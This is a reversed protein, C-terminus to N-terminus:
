MMPGPAGTPIGQAPMPMPQPPAPPPVMPPQSDLASAPQPMPGAMHQVAGMVQDLENQLKQLEDTQQKNVDMIPGLAGKVEGEIQTKMQMLAAQVQKGMEQMIQQAQGQQNKTQDVTSLKFDRPFGATRGVFNLMKVLQDAGIAQMVSPNNAAIQLMELMSKASETNNIRDDGDRDSIFSEYAIAQKTAKVRATGAKEDWSEVPNKTAYSFGLEDLKKADVLEDMAIQAYFEDQGYAMLANYIQRKWADFAIDVATATFVVRTSTNGQINRIEERTQEHSAAQGVEQASMVLVRELTDLIMRMAAIMANTDQQVFKHSVVASQSDKGGKIFKKFSARVINIGRWFREGFNEVKLLDKEDIIDTDVFNLNALNQKVTLLFQTMLNSFQDQFPLVELSMSVNRTRGEAGDYGYYILPNYPLPVCYLVTDDAAVIFRFWIPHDYDGLGFESPVLKEFYETVLVTKDDTASSYCGEAVYKENDYKSTGSSGSPSVPFNLTCGKYTNVWYDRNRGAWDNFQGFAVSDLNYLRKNQRIEGWRMVRWYGAYTCGTDSNITNPLYAQDRFTRTPHPLHYRLGEKVVIKKAIVKGDKDKIEEGQIPTEPGIEQLESHWEEVPFQIQDAYHLMRFISQKMVDFYGYQRAMKEGRATIVDCRMRSVANSVAPEFKMFPLLRRDNCMKAWRTTVYARVLPVYIEFFAPINIKQINKGPTKNDPVEVLVKDLDVGWNKLSDKVNADDPGKDMLSSLLTPTIQQFPLDWALDLAYFVKYNGINFDRGEACRSRIRNRLNGIRDSQQKLNSGLELKKKLGDYDIGRDALIKLDVM